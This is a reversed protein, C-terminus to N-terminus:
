VREPPVAILDQLIERPTRRDTEGKLTSIDPSFIAEALDVDKEVVPCDKIRNVHLIM